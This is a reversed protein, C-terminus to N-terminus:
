IERTAHLPYRSIHDGSLLTRVVGILLWAVIRDGSEVRAYLRREARKSGADMPASGANRRLTLEPLRASM